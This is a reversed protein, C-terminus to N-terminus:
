VKRSVEGLVARAVRGARWDLLLGLLFGVGGVVFLPIIWGAMRESVLAGQMADRCILLLVAGALLAPAAVGLWAALFLGARKWGREIELLRAQVLGVVAGYLLWGCLLLSLPWVVLPMRAFGPLSLLLGLLTGMVSVLLTCELISCQLRRIFLHGFYVVLLLAFAAGLVVAVWDMGNWQVASYISLAVILLTLLWRVWALDYGRAAERRNRFHRTFMGGMTGFFPFLKQRAPKPVESM